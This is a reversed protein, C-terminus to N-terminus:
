ATAQDPPVGRLELDEEPGERRLELDKEIKHTPTATLSPTNTPRTGQGPGAPQHQKAAWREAAAQQRFELDNAPSPSPAQDLKRTKEWEAVVLGAVLASDPTTERELYDHALEKPRARSLTDVFRTQVSEPTAGYARGGFDDTAYFVTADDRHRSLAVYSTHRDFHSTALVYTKDVTTGQAKHVTAAYGYDLHQYFKTDVVINQRNPTGAVRDLKVTLVGSGISMVTGLSGNKVGLDRENHLFRIRDNVAFPRKGRETPIVEGEERQGTQQRLTRISTNLQNVDDRTYALVLQSVSPDQRHDHAWVTGNRLARRLSLLTAVEFARFARERDAGSLLARWVKGFDISTSVPLEGVGHEYLEKLRQLAASVPHGPIAQWPLLVLATLLSRVPRIEEILHERVLQARTPPKRQQHAAVLSRLRERIESDAVTTDSALAGLSVLLERYLDAWHILVQNADKTARRWLDAVRRRVMLLVRDTCTLLCYRLFYAVEITRVPERILRGASPPRSALRRAYRRLLDDPADILHRHVGLEYLTEIRELLEEIQRPSHKAPAAWLWSQQSLGTEHPTVLVERWRELLESDIEAHISGALAAEYQRTAGVITSRLSREHMIILQHDYLWRRAFVLLRQRDRTRALEQRLARVLARRQPESLWHFGLVECALQQHEFLTKGRRYMARLSALDPAAVHLQEGLHRWLVTPVIRVADLVRGSMRLFGMQLALGLKLEPRRREEIVQREAPTFRFFAVIEFATLERPLQKLGLFTAQWNDM